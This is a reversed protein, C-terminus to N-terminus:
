MVSCSVKWGSNRILYEAVSVTCVTSSILCGMMRSANRMTGTLARV